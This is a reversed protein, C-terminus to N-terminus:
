WWPKKYTARSDGSEPEVIDLDKFHLLRDWEPSAYKPNVKMEGNGIDFDFRFPLRGDGWMCRKVIASNKYSQWTGVFSRNMYGDGDQERNDVRITNPVDDTVYGYAGLIGRFEGSGKQAADETLTCDAIIVYYGPFGTNRQFIHYIKKITVEGAFDRVNKKVKTRGRVVYTVSDTKIADPYFYVEIRKFDNGLVGNVPADVAKGNWYLYTKFFAQELLLKGEIFFRTCDEFLQGEIPTMYTEYLGSYDVQCLDLADNDIWYYVEGFEDREINLPKNGLRISDQPTDSFAFAVEGKSLMAFLVGICLLMLCMSKM